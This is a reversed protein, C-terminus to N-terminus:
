SNPKLTRQFKKQGDQNTAEGQPILYSPYEVAYDNMKNFYTGYEITGANSAGCATLLAIAM